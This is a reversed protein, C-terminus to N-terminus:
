AVVRSGEGVVDALRQAGEGGRSSRQEHASSVEGFLKARRLEPLEGGIHEVENGGGCVGDAVGRLGGHAHAGGEGHTVVEVFEGVGHLAAAHHFGSLVTEAGHEVSAASLGCGHRALRGASACESESEGELGDVVSVSAAGDKHCAYVEKEVM